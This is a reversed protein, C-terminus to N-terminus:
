ARFVPSRHQNWDLARELERCVQLLLVDAGPRGVLQAGFPLGNEAGIGAPISAAPQGSANFSATFAGLEAAAVFAAEPALDNWAGVKPAFCGITPTLLLDANGFWDLVRRQLTDTLEQARAHSVGRGAARLWRTIPQLHAESLAPPNAALRQFIPLFDDLSGVAPAIPEVHHGMGELVQAFHEIGAAIEPVVSGVPSSLCLRIRLGRPPPRQCQARLSTEAAPHGPHGRLADLVAASDEVTHTVAGMVSLAVKDFASYFHPTLGRSAKFGFLHCLAAPIRISGGGDAAHALPLMGAAVAAAAGGSSGGASHAPNWPNVTPAQLDTEVVPMLALESTATKGTLVLGAGRLRTVAACDFPSWTYRYARSGARNFAFRVPDTDKIAFPVGLFTPSREGRAVGRDVAAARRRSTYPFTEVFANLGPDLRGIRDQYVALLEVASIAGARVLDAQDLASKHRIEHTSM